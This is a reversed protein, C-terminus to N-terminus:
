FQDDISLPGTQVALGAPQNPGNTAGGQPPIWDLGTQYTFQMNGIKPIKLGTPLWQYKKSKRLGLLACFKKYRSKKPSIGRPERFIWVKAKAFTAAKAMDAITKIPLGSQEALTKKAVAGNLYAGGIQLVFRVHASM